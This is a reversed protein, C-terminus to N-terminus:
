AVRAPPLASIFVDKSDELPINLLLNLDLGAIYGPRYCQGFSDNQLITVFRQSSIRQSHVIYEIKGFVGAFQNIGGIGLLNSCRYGDWFPGLAHLLKHRHIASCNFGLLM